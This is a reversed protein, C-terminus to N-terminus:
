HEWLCANRALEYPGCPCSLMINCLQLDLCNWLVEFAFFGDVPKLIYIEPGYQYWIPSTKPGHALGSPAIPFIIAVNCLMLDLYNWLLELPSFADLSKNSIHAGCLISGAASCGTWLPVVIGRWGCPSLFLLTFTNSNMYKWVFELKSMNFTAKHESMLWNCWMYNDMVVGSQLMNQVMEPIGIGYLTSYRHHLRHDEIGRWTSYPISHWERPLDLM